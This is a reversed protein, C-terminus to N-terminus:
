AKEQEQDAQVPLAHPAEYFDPEDNDSTKMAGSGDLACLESKSFITPLFYLRLPVLLSLVFPLALSAPSEKVGLLIGLMILQVATFIHMKMTRVKKVYPADPHYKVPMFMLVLRELFQIGATSATGMYLFIGLLVAKPVLNLADSLLVAVGVLISVVLGSLRQEKVGEVQLPQGPSRAPSTVTLAAAHAVTRICAPCMFPAGLLGSMLNIFCSLVLDLHFGTGKVMKREPKSLILHCISGELFVLFFVLIAAPAAAFMCWVPLPKVQGLPNIMWGRIDPNSPQIGEPMTLKDTFTDQILFDLLVMLFIAIPMGFDGLARRVGRGLFKSNRFNKLKIAITFTGLMLILSLLATNPQPSVRAPTPVDRTTTNLWVYTDNFDEDLTTQHFYNECDYEQLLPHDYFIGVMKVVAEYLFILCIMSAFIEETFRTIKKVIVIGEFAAVTLGIVVMWLGIWVRISLFDLGNAQAFNYLSIDFVMLPGTPGIILLPQAAFVAFIVGNVCSLLLSEGVGILNNYMGGFTIAPSLVAFFIFLTAALVQGNLGDIIDSPYKPYRDRIDRYLGYFPKGVRLLPNRRPPQDETTAETTVRELEFQNSKITNTENNGDATSTAPPLVDDAACLLENLSHATYAAELFENREMLTTISCSIKHYDKEDHFPGLLVFIFRVPMSDKIRNGLVVEESLRVFALIPSQLFSVGGAMVATMEGVARNLETFCDHHIYTTSERMTDRHVTSSSVGNSENASNSPRNTAFISAYKELLITIVHDRQDAPIQDSAIMHDVVRTVIRALDREAVDLVVGGLPFDPRPSFKENHFDEDCNDVAIHNLDM